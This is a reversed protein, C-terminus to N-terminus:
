SEGKSGEARGEALDEYIAISRPRPTPRQCLGHARTSCAPGPPSAVSRPTVTPFLASYAPQATPPSPMPVTVAGADCRPLDVFNTEQLTGGVNHNWKIQTWPIADTGPQDWVWTAYGTIKDTASLKNEDITWQQANTIDQSFNIGLGVCANSTLGGINLTGQGEVGFDDDTAFDQQGSVGSDPCVAAPTITIAVAATSLGGSVSATLNYDGATDIQLGPFEALGGSLNATSGSIAGSGDETITVTDGDRTNSPSGNVMFAVQVTAGLKNFDTGTIKTNTAADHPATDFVLTPCATSTLTTKTLTSSNTSFPLGSGVSGGTWM